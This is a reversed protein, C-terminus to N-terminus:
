RVRAVCCQAGGGRRDGQGAGVRVQSGVDGGDLVAVTRGIEDLGLVDRGAGGLGHLQARLIRVPVVVGRQEAQDAAAVRGGGALNRQGALYCGQVARVHAAGPLRGAGGVAWTVPMACFGLLRASSNARTAGPWTACWRWTIRSIPWAAACCAIVPPLPVSGPTGAALRNRGMPVAPPSEGAVTTRTTSATPRTNMPRTDTAPKETSAWRLSRARPMSLATPAVSRLRRRTM